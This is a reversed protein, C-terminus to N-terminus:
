TPDIRHWEKMLVLGIVFVVLVVGGVWLVTRIWDIGPAESEVAAPISYQGTVGRIQAVLESEPISEGSEQLTAQGGRLVWVQEISPWHVDGRNSRLLLLVREGVRLDGAVCEGPLTELRLRVTEASTPGKLYAEPAVVATQGTTAQQVSGIVAIGVPEMSERALSRDFGACESLPGPTQALATTTLAFAGLIALALSRTPKLL